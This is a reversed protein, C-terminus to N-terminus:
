KQKPVAPVKRSCSILYLFNMSVVFMELKCQTDLIIVVKQGEFGVYWLFNKREGNFFQILNRFYKLKQTTKNNKNQNRNWFLFQLVTFTLSIELVYSVITTNKYANKRRTIKTHQLTLRVNNLVPSSLRMQLLFSQNASHPPIMESSAKTRDDSLVSFSYIKVGTEVM